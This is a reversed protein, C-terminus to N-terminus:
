EQAAQHSFNQITFPMGMYIPLWHGYLDSCHSNRACVEDRTKVRQANDEIIREVDISRAAAAVVTDANIQISM